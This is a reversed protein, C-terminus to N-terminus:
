ARLKVAEERGRQVKLRLFFGARQTKDSFTINGWLGTDSPSPTEKQRTPSRNSGTEPSTSRKIDPRSPNFQCYNACRSHLSPFLFMVNAHQLNSIDM